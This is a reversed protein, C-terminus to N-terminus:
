DRTGLRLPIGNELSHLQDKSYGLEEGLGMAARLKEPTGHCPLLHYPNVLKIFEATDCRGAHGSVHVDKHIRAGQARLKTELLERNSENIPNPIVSSSFIVGDGRGVEFPLQKDAIRTLVSTPEGQHGTCVLVYDGKSGNLERLSGRASNPSGHVRLESPLEVLGLRLATRVYSRLSRGVLVPTRGLEFSLDVLSKVRAIHSSFTTVIVARGNSGAEAMVERLMRKARSESPTPGLEDIRVTGVLAAFLNEDGLRRLKSRDIPLGLLPEDDLKFDSACLISDEGKRVLVFASQPISHTAHFFELEIDGVRVVDGDGVQVFNGKTKLAHEERMVHKALELTFPTGYIPVRYAHVLKGVAGVHDLHGHTLVIARVERGRLPSDDPIANMGILEERSMSWIDAEEFAQISDLRMGMDVIVYEGDFGLATMNKGVEGLGGLPLVEM